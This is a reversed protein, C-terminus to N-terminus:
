AIRMESYYRYTGRGDAKAAYLAQDACRLLSTLDGGDDPWIGMGISGGLKLKHGDLSIPEALRKVIKQAVM